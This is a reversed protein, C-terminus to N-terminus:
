WKNFSSPPPRSNNFPSSSLFHNAGRILSQLSSPQSLPLISPLQSHWWPSDFNWFRLNLTFLLDTWSFVHFFMQEGCPFKCDNFSQSDFVQGTRPEWSDLGWRIASMHGVVTSARGRRAHGLTKSLSLAFCRHCTNVFNWRFPNSRELVGGSGLQEGCPKILVCSVFYLFSYCHPTFCCLTNPNMVFFFFFSSIQHFSAGRCASYVRTSHTMGYVSLSVKLCFYHPLNPTADLQM